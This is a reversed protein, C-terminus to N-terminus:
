RRNSCACWPTTGEEEVSCLKAFSTSLGGSAAAVTSRPGHGRPRGVRGEQLGLIDKGAKESRLSAQQRDVDPCSGAPLYTEKYPGLWIWCSGPNLRAHLFAQLQRRSAPTAPRPHVQALTRAWTSPVWGEAKWTLGRVPGPSEQRRSAWNRDHRFPLTTKQFLWVISKSKVRVISKPRPIKMLHEFKITDRVAIVRLTCLGTGSLPLTM